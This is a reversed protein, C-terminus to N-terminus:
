RRGSFIEVFLGCLGNKEYKKLHAMGPGKEKNQRKLVTSLLCINSFLKVIVPNSGRIEPTPSSREVLQPM